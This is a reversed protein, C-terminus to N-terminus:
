PPVVRVNVAPWPIANPARGEKQAASWEDDSCVWVVPFDGGQVVTSVAIRRVERKDATQVVVRDGTSIKTVLRSVPNSIRAIQTTGIFIGFKRQQGNRHPMAHGYIQGM